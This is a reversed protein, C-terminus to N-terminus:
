DRRKVGSERLVKAKQKERNKTIMGHPAGDVDVLFLVCAVGM